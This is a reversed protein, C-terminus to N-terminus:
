PGMYSESLVSVSHVCVPYVSAQWWKMAPAYFHLHVKIQM